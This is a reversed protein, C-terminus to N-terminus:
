RESGAVAILELLVSGQDNGRLRHREESQWDECIGRWGSARNGWVVCVNRDDTAGTEGLDRSLARACEAMAEDRQDEDSVEPELRCEAPRVPADALAYPGDHSSSAFIWYAYVPNAGGWLREVETTDPREAGPLAVLATEPPRPSEVLPTPMARDGTAGYVLGLPLLCLAAAPCARRMWRPARYSSPGKVLM